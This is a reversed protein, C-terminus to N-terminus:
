PLPPPTAATLTKSRMFEMPQTPTVFQTVDVGNSSGAFRLMKEWNLLDATTEIMGPIPVNLLTTSIPKLNTPPIPAGPVILPISPDSEGWMNSATVTWRHPAALVNSLTVGLNTTTAVLNTIVGNDYVRYTLNSASQNDWALTVSQIPPVVAGCWTASMLLITLAIRM